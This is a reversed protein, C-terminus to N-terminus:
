IEKFKPCIKTKCQNKDDQSMTSEDCAQNCAVGFNYVRGCVENCISQNRKGDFRRECIRSECDFNVLKDCLKQTCKDIEPYASCYDNQCSKERSVVQPCLLACEGRRDPDKIKGCLATCDKLPSFAAQSRIDTNQINTIAYYVVGAVVILAIFMLLQKLTKQQKKNAM